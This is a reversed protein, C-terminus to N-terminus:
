SVSAGSWDSITDSASVDCNRCVVRGSLVDLSKDIPQHHPADLRAKAQSSVLPLKLNIEKQNKLSSISYSQMLATFVCDTFNALVCCKKRSAINPLPLWDRLQLSLCCVSRSSHEKM